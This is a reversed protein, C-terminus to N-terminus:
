KGLIKNKIWVYDASTINGDQNADALVLLDSDTIRKTGLIHNKVAVYDASSLKGDGNADGYVLTDTEGSSVTLTCAKSATVTIAYTRTYGTESEVSLSVTNTGKSLSYSSAGTYSAGEPLSYTLTTDGSVSLTYSNTYMDFDPSLSGSSASLGLFYYNNLDSDKEPASVATDPMNDYVPIRFTFEAETLDAYIDKVSYTSNYAAWVSTAYQHWYSDSGNIVNYYMYYYTDQGYSFYGNAYFQAGGLISEEVSDWGQEKAYELGNEIVDSTSSGTANVNFFNYYGEYGAYEGSTLPTESTGQESLLIAALVYASVGTQQAASLVYSSYEYMFSDELISQVGELTESDSYSQELFMFVYDEDLFNRPDMYYAIVEYSAYTWGGESSTWEGTDWDYNSSLLAKWSDATTMQVKKLGEENSVVDSFDEGIYDFEFTANPYIEKLAAIYSKYVSPVTTTTTYAKTDQFFLPICILLALIVAACRIWVRKKKFIKKIKDFVM